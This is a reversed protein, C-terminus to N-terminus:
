RGMRRKIAQLRRKLHMPRLLQLHATWRTAWEPATGRMIAACDEVLHHFLVDPSFWQEWAQRALRGKEEFRAELPRLLDALRPIDREAIRIAFSSWDPGPPEVWQDSIIVPARGMEMSEFIRFSSTGYGRPCLIFRSQAAVEIFQRKAADVQGQDGSRLAAVFSETNDTILLSPDRVKLMNLRAPTRGACGVFSALYRLQSRGAIQSFEALFPNPPAIYCGSRARSRSYYRKEISPYIGRVIPVPWDTGSHLFTKARHRRYVPDAAIQEFYAGAPSDWHLSEVFLILDAQDPDDVLTHQGRRDLEAMERVRRVPFLHEEGIDPLTQAISRLNIKM